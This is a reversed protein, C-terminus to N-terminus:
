ASSPMRSEHADRPSPSTYLLCILRRRILLVPHGSNRTSHCIRLMFIVKISVFDIPSMKDFTLIGQIGLPFQVHLSTIVLSRFDLQPHAGGATSPCIKKVPLSYLPGQLSTRFMHLILIGFADEQSIVLAKSLAKFVSGHEIEVLSM